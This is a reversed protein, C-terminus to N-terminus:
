AALRVRERSLIEAVAAVLAEIMAPMPNPGPTFRLRKKGRPVTPDNVPQVYVGFDGLLSDSAAKAVVADGIM